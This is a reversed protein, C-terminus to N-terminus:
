YILIGKRYAAPIKSISEWDPEAREPASAVSPAITRRTQKVYTALRMLYHFVSPTFRIVLRAGTWVCGIGAGLFVLFILVYM